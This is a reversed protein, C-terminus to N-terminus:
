SAAQQRHNPHRPCDTLDHLRGYADCDACDDIARTIAARAARADADAQDDETKAARRAEGCDYCSGPNPVNHEPRWCRPGHPGRIWKAAKGNASQTSPTPPASRGEEEVESSIPSSYTKTPPDHRKRLPTTVNVYPPATFTNRSTTGGQTFTDRSAADDKVRYARPRGGEAALYKAAVHEGLKELAIGIARSSLGTETGIDRRSVQWWRAGEHVVRDPGDSECRFRIHALVIAAAPGFRRVEDPIVRIFAGM